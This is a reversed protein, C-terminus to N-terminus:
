AKWPAIAADPVERNATDGHFDTGDDTGANFSNRRRYAVGFILIFMLLSPFMMVLVGMRLAELMGPAQAAANQYCAPCTQAMVVSSSALAALGVGIRTLSAWISYRLDSSQFRLNSSQFRNM